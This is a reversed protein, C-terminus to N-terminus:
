ARDWPRPKTHCACGCPTQACYASREGRCAECPTPCFTCPWVKPDTDRQVTMRHTDCCKSCVPPAHPSRGCTECTEPDVLGPIPRGPVSSPDVAADLANVAHYLQFAVGRRNCDDWAAVMLRHAERQVRAIAKAHADRILKAIKGIADDPDPANVSRRAEDLMALLDDVESPHPRSADFPDPPEAPVHGPAGERRFRARARIARERDSSTDPPDSASRM